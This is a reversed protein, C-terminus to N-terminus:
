LAMAPVLVEDVVDAVVPRSPPSPAEESRDDTQPAMVMPAQDLACPSKGTPRLLAGKEPDGPPAGRNLRVEGRQVITALVLPRM